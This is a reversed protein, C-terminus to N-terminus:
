LFDIRVADTFNSTAQPNQDKHWAQFRWTEGANVPVRLTPLFTMDVQISLRGGADVTGVQSVFRGIRGALCLNGQSGGPSSIFGESGAVLFYGLEGPPLDRGELVLLGHTAWDSGLAVLGGAQGTSNLNAPGCYSSGVAGFLASDPAADLDTSEGNTDSGDTGLDISLAPDTHLVLRDLTFGGERTDIPFRQVLGVEAATIVYDVGTNHWVFNAGEFFGNSPDNSYKSPSLELSPTGGFESVDVPLILSDENGYDTNKSVDFLSYRLYLRYLGPDSFRLLYTLQGDHYVWAGKTSSRVAVGNSAETTGPLVGSAIDVREWAPDVGNDQYTGESRHFSEAQFALHPDGPRQSIATDQPAALALSASLLSLLTTQIRPSSHFM